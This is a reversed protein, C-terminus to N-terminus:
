DRIHKQNCQTRTAAHPNERMTTLLPWEENHHTHKKNNHSRMSCLTPALTCTSDKPHVPQTAGLCTPDEWVLSRVRTGQLPQHIGLWQVVLSTRSEETKNEAVPGSFELGRPQKRKERGTQITSLEGYAAWSGFWRQTCVWSAVKGVSAEGQVDWPVECRSQGFQRFVVKRGVLGRTSAETEVSWVAAQGSGDM